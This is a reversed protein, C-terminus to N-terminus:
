EAKGERESGNLAQSGNPAQGNPAQAGSLTQARDPSADGHAERDLAERDLAADESEADVNVPEKDRHRAEYLDRAVTERPKRLFIYSLCLGIVAAILTAVWGKLGLLLLGTLPVAFMLVRYVSYYVWVPVSNM